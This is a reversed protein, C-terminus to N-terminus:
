GKSREYLLFVVLILYDRDVNSVFLSEHSKFVDGIDSQRASEVSIILKNPIHMFAENSDIDTIARAGCVGGFIAPYQM